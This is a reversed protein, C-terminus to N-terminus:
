DWCYDWGKGSFGCDSGALKWKHFTGDKYELTDSLIKMGLGSLASNIRNAHSQEFGGKDVLSGMFSSSVRPTLM